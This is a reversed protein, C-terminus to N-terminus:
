AGRQAPERSEHAEGRRGVLEHIVTEQERGRVRIRDVERTVFTDGIAALTSESILVHTGYAKNMGELRAALNVADGVATYDFRDVSGFNGVIPEGTHIGIGIELRPLGRADWSANLTELADLMDLAANCCRVAHDPIALPAGWFAMVADGIYKDLLGKNRFVVDTMASLYEILFEGLMEPPMQESLTTFGRIDSFLITLPARHGGLQLRSPDSALMETVEPSLYHRFADRIVQKERQEAVAKHIASVLLSLSMGAIPYFAGLALGFRAFLGQSLAGYVVALAIATAVAPLIALRQLALGMSLGLAVILLAEFPVAWWPRWLSRGALLNDVVTAQLEVGPVVPAFPSSIEDFGAATFGVIAIRGDIADAPARGALVDAASVQRFTRAPGLHNVWIQGAPNVPVRRDGIRLDRVEHRDLTIMIADTGASRAALQLGFAPTLKEGVRLVLPVRRYLGDADPLANIHGNAAAEALSPVAVHLRTFAPVLAGDSAGGITRVSVEPVRAAADSLSPAPAGDIEGFFALVARGSRRLAAALARDGHGQLDELLARSPREPAEAVMEAATSLDLADDRQDFVVDFGIVAAGSTSLADVLKAIRARPWPWRGLAALSEEDIAVITVAPHPALPGRIVHRFDLTKFDLIELPIPAALRLGALVLGIAAGVRLATWHPMRPM